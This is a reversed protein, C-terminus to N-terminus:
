LEADFGAERVLFSRYGDPYREKKARPTHLVRKFCPGGAPVWRLPDRPSLLRPATVGVLSAALNWGERVPSLAFAGSVLLVSALWLRREFPTLDWFPNKM